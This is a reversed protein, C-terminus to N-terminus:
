IEKVSGSIKFRIEDHEPTTWTSGKKDGLQVIGNREGVHKVSFAGLGPLTIKEDKNSTLTEKVLNAYAALVDDVNKQSLETTEAINKLVDTKNM